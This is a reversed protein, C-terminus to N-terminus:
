KKLYTGCNRKGEQESCPDTNKLIVTSSFQNQKDFMKSNHDSTM